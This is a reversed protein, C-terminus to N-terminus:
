LVDLKQLRTWVQNRQLFFVIKISRVSFPPEKDAEDVAEPGTSEMTKRLRYEAQGRDHEVYIGRNYFRGM